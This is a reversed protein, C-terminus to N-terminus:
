RQGERIKNLIGAIGGGGGVGGGVGGQNVPKQSVPVVPSAGSLAAGPTATSIASREGGSSNIAQVFYYRTTTDTLNPRLCSNSLGGVNAAVTAFPLGPPASPTANEFIAYTDASAVENWCVQVANPHSITTVTPTSPPFLPGSLQNVSTMLWTLFANLAPDSVSQPVQNWPRQPGPM